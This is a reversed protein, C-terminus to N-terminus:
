KQEVPYEAEVWADFGGLLAKVIKFGKSKLFRAV